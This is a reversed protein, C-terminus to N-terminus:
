FGEKLKQKYADNILEMSIEVEGNELGNEKLIEEYKNYTRLIHKYSDKNCRMGDSIKNAFDNIEWRMKDIESNTFMNTLAKIDHRIEAIDNLITADCEDSKHMDNIHEKKFDNLDKSTQILLEYEERRTRMWKTEIGFKEFIWEFLSVIAKIAILIAFVSIFVYSFNIKTLEIIESM